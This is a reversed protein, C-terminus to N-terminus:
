LRQLDADKPTSRDELRHQNGHLLDLTRIGEAAKKGQLDITEKIQDALNKTVESPVRFRFRSQMKRWNRASTGPIFGIQPNFNGGKPTQTGRM